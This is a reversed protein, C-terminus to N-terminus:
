MQIIKRFFADIESENTGSVFADMIYSENGRKYALMAPIGQIMRKTRLHGYLEFSEDVCVYVFRIHPCEPVIRRKWNEIYGSIKQCPRCWSAGFKFVIVGTNARLLAYFEELSVVGEPQSNMYYILPIYLIYYM